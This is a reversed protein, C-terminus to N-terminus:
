VVNVNLDPLCSPPGCSGFDTARARNVGLHSGTSEWIVGLHSGPRCSGFDTARARNVGLHSGFYPGCSGFDTARTRTVGLPSGTSTWNVGLHSGSSEWIVGLHGTEPSNPRFCPPAPLRAAPSQTHTHTHPLVGYGNASLWAIKNRIDSIHRIRKTNM